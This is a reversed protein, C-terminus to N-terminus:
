FLNPFKRIYPLERTFKKDRILDSASVEDIKSVFSKQSLRLTLDEERRIDLGLFKITTDPEM